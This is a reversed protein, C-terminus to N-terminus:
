DGSFTSFLTLKDVSKKITARFHDAFGSDRLAYEILVDVHTVIKRKEKKQANKLHRRTAAKAEKRHITRKCNQVQAM